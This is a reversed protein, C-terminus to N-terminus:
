QVYSKKFVLPTGVAPSNAVLSEQDPILEFLQDISPTAGTIDPRLVLALEASLGWVGSEVVESGDAPFRRLVYTRMPRLHLTQRVGASTSEYLGALLYKPNCLTTRDFGLLSDIVVRPRNGEQEPHATTDIHGRFEIFIREGGTDPNMSMYRRETNLYDAEPQVVYTLGTACDVVTAADAFYTFEGSFYDMPQQATTSSATCSTVLVATLFAVIFTVLFAVVFAVITKVSYRSGTKM